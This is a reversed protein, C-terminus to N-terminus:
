TGQEAKLAERCAAGLRGGLGFGPGKEIDALWEVDKRPLEVRVTPSLKRRLIVFHGQYPSWDAKIAKGAPSLYHEGQKVPRVDPEVDYEALVESSVEVKVPVKPM